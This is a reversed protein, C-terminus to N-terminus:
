KWREMSRYSVGVADAAKKLGGYTRRLWEKYTRRFRAMMEKHKEGKKFTFGCDEPIAEEVPRTFLPSQEVSVSREWDFDKYLMFYITFDDEGLLRRKKWSVSLKILDRLNRKMNGAYAYIWQRALIKPIWGANGGTKKWNEEFFRLMAEEKGQEILEKITPFKVTYDSIRDLLKFNVKGQLEKPSYRSTFIVRANYQEKGIGIKEAPVEDFIKALIQQSKESFNEFDDIVLIGNHANKLQQEWFNREPSFEMSADIIILEGVRKRTDEYLEEASKKIAYTKGTGSAGYVLLPYGSFHKLHIIIKEKEEQLVPSLTNKPKMKMAYVEIVFITFIKFHGKM